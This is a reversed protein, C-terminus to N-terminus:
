PKRDDCEEERQRRLRFCFVTVLVGLCFALIAVVIAGLAAHGTLMSAAFGAAGATQSQVPTNAVVLAMAIVLVLCAAVAGSCQLLYKRRGCRRQLAEMRRHVEAVREEPTLM